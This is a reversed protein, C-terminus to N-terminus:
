GKEWVRGSPRHRASRRHRSRRQREHSTRDRVAVNARLPKADVNPPLHVYMTCPRDAEPVLQFIGVSSGGTYGSPQRRTATTTLPRGIPAPRNRSARNLRAFHAPQQALQGGGLSNASAGQSPPRGLRARRSWAFCLVDASPSPTCGAASPRTRPAIDRPKVCFSHVVINIDMPLSLM